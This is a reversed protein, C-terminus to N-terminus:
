VGGFRKKQQTKECKELARELCYHNYSNEFEFAHFNTPPSTGDLSLSIPDHGHVEIIKLIKQYM